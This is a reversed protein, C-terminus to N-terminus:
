GDNTDSFVNMATNMRHLVKTTSSLGESLNDESLEPSNLLRQYMSKLDDSSTGKLYDLNRGVGVLTAELVSISHRRTSESSLIPDSVLDVTDAFLNRKDQLVENSAQRNDKM